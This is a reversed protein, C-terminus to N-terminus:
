VQFWRSRCPQHVCFAATLKCASIEEVLFGFVLVCVCVCSM